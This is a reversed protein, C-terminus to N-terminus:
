EVSQLWSCVGARLGMVRLGRVVGITGLLEGDEIVVWRVVVVVVWACSVMFM